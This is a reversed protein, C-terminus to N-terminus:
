FSKRSSCSNTRTLPMKRSSSRLRAITRVKSQHSTTEEQPTENPLLELFMTMLFIVGLIISLLVIKLLNFALVHQYGGNTFFEKLEFVLWVIFVTSAVVIKM